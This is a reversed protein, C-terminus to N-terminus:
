KKTPPPPGCTFDTTGKSDTVSAKYNDVSGTIAITKVDSLDHKNLCFQSNGMNNPHCTGKPPLFQSKCLGVEFDMSKIDCQSPIKVDPTDGKAIRYVTGGCTDSTFTYSIDANSQNSISIDAIAGISTICLATALSTSLALNRYTM